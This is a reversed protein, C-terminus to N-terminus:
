ILDAAERWRDEVLRLVFKRADIVEVLPIQRRVAARLPAGALWCRSNFILVRDQIEPHIRASIQRGHAQLEKLGHLFKEDRAEPGDKLLMRIPQKVLLLCHLIGAGPEPDVVVLETRARAFFLALQPRNGAPRAATAEPAASGALNQKLQRIQLMMERHYLSDEHVTHDIRDRCRKFLVNVLAALFRRKRADGQQVLKRSLNLLNPQNGSYDLKIDFRECLDELEYPSFYEGLADALMKDTDSKM